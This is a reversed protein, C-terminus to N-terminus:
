MVEVDAAYTVSEITSESSALVGLAKLKPEVVSGLVNIKKISQVGAAGFFNIKNGALTLTNLPTVEGAVTGFVPSTKSVLCTGELTVFTTGSTPLLLLGVGSPAENTKVSGLEGDLTNTLIKGTGAGGGKVSCGSGETSSCNFFTVMVNGVTKPGTIEGTTTDSQCTVPSTSITELAGTGSTGTFTTLTGPLFLPSEASATTVALLSMALVAAFILGALRSLKM